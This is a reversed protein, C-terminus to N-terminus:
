KHAKSGYEGNWASGWVWEATNKVLRSKVPNNRIYARVTALHKDNRIFRDFYDAAWFIGSRGLAANAKKATFSKWSHVISSLSYNENLGILVHVHNPMICWELLHYREGDYFLLADQVIKAVDNKQLYCAGYGADEYKRIRNRLDAKRKEDSPYGHDMEVEEKWQAIVHAPVSDHLRFTISQIMNPVDFHPIYGRSHWGRFTASKHTSTSTDQEGFDKADNKNSLNNAPLIGANKNNHKCEM